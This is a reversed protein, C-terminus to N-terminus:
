LTVINLDEPISCKASFVCGLNTISDLQKQVDEEGYSILIRDLDSIRYDGIATRKGNVYFKLKKNQNNCFTENATSFCEGTFAMGLSSFFEELGVNEDEIHIVNGGFDNETHLHIRRDKENYQPLAFDMEQGNIFIKFDAHIHFRERIIKPKTAENEGNRLDIFLLLLILSVSVVFFYRQYRKVYKRKMIVCKIQIHMRKAACGETM